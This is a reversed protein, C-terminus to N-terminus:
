RPRGFNVLPRKVTNVFAKKILLNSLECFCLFVQSVLLLPFQITKIIKVEIKFEVHLKWPFGKNCQHMAKMYLFSTQIFCTFVCIPLQISLGSRNDFPWERSIRITKIFIFGMRLGGRMFIFCGKGNPKLYDTGFPSVTRGCSGSM